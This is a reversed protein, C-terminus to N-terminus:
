LGLIRGLAQLDKASRMEERFATFSGFLMPVKYKKCLKINFIMRALLKGKNQSNLIESFSFGIIKGKEAAIACLVQDLGGRVFHLSDKPHLNEMGYIIDVGNKELAFRLMEESDAKFLTKLKKNRAQDIEKLLEKQTKGNLVVFDTDLFHVRTFGLEAALKEIEVSKKMFVYDDM